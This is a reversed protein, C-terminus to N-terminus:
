LHDACTPSIRRFVILGLALVAVSVAAALGFALPDPPQAQLVVRRASDIIGALPNLLYIRLLWPPASAVVTDLPYFVPTLWFLVTLGSEVIYRMDRFRVNLSACLCAAGLLFTLEVGLILPLWLWQVSVPVHWLIMFVALLLCQIAFHAAQSLVVSVPLLIRPFPVKKVVPANFLLTPTATSVSLSFFNYPVVGLLLFVPFFPQHIGHFAYTFVFAFMALMVLPNLLSWLMGLSMNRYRARFDTLILNALAYRRRWIGAPTEETTCSM